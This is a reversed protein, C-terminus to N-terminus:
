PIPVGPPEVVLMTMMGGPFLDNNVIEKETHSHWMHYYGGNINLGGQGPPLPLIQGMFPSGSWWGGFTVNLAEPLVVPFPKGHDPAYEAPQLPDSLSHGYMDWGLKEGTWTFIADVTEGPVSQITFVEYSLDVGAGPASELLRGDKAIIRAHNGHHHYPHLDRGANIVRMLLREGPHMRPLCNYPQTPLTPIFADAMTDPANRGNIFWYVPWWSTNDVLEPVGFEVYNHINVDMETLLFLYEHDFQSDPHNYAQNAAASPRVILAGLLGMEVQLDPRTGSHYHYTGPQSAVFSYTVRDLGGATGAAAAERTMIGAVGGTAVVDDQGPFVISVPTDLENVLDITVVAGQQVILTPGPYQARDTGNAFAWILLSNGDPTVIYDSTARFQFHTGTVGDVVARTEGSTGALLLVAAVAAWRAIVHATGKM